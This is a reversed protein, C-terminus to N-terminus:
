RSARGDGAPRHLHRPDAVRPYRRPARASRAVRRPCVPSRRLRPRLRARRGLSAPSRSGRDPDAIPSARRHPARRPVPLELAGDPARRSGSQAGGLRGGRPLAQHRRPSPTMQSPDSRVAQILPSDQFELELLQGLFFCVDGVKRDELVEAVQTRVKTKAAEPDMGEVIGFRARLVRAFVDYASGGERASGRFVRPAGSVVQRQRSLFDRVLRTKGIGAPGIITVARGRKEDRVAALASELVAMQEDRGVLSTRRNIAGFGAPAMSMSEGM